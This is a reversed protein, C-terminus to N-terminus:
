NRNGTPFRMSSAAYNRWVNYRYLKRTQFHTGTKQHHNLALLSRRGQKRQKNVVRNRAISFLWTTISARQSDYRNRDRWVQEFTEAAVDEALDPDGLRILCYNFIADLYENYLETFVQPTLADASRRTLM